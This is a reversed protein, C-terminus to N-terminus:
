ESVINKYVDIVKNATKEWCFIKLREYGKRIYFARLSTNNMLEQIKLAMDEPNFPDAYLASNGAVEVLAQTRSCVVPVGCAFAHVVGLGFGEYFSPQCYITALNMISVLDSDEVYGLRMVKGEKEFMEKLLRYHSLEPHPKNLLFRLWDRPGKMNELNISLNDEIDLAQKGVIVLPVGVKKCALVLTPINKNYYVDGLYLVFKNPLKYKRVIRNLRRRDNEKNFFPLPAIHIAHVKESPVNLFRVIDKKSTESITIIADVNKLRLKQIMFKLSGRLGRSYQKPYILPILDYITIVTRAFFKSPLTLFYPHFYPYHVVDYKTKKFKEQNTSFDFFDINIDKKRKSEKELFIALYKTNVGIGSIQTKSNWGLDFAVNM